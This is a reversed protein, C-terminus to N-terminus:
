PCLNRPTSNYDSLIPQVDRNFDIAADDAWATRALGSTLSQM